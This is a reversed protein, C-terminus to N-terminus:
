TWSEMFFGRTDGFVKPELIVVEPLATPMVNM